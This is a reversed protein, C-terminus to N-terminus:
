PLKEPQYFSSFNKKWSIEEKVKQLAVKIVQTDELKTAITGKAGDSLSFSTRLIVSIIEKRDDKKMEVVDSTMKLLGPKPSKNNLRAMVLGESDKVLFIPYKEQNESSVEMEFHFMEVKEPEMRWTFSNFVIKRGLRRFFGFNKVTWKFETTNDSLVIKNERENEGSQAAAM